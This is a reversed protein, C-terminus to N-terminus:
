AMLEKFDYPQKEIWRAVYADFNEQLMGATLQVGEHEWLLTGTPDHLHRMGLLHVGWPYEWGLHDEDGKGLRGKYHQVSTQEHLDAGPDREHEWRLPADEWGKQMDAILFWTETDGKNARQKAPAFIRNAPRIWEFFPKQLWNDNKLEPLFDMETFLLYDDWGKNGVAFDWMIQLCEAHTKKGDNFHPTIEIESDERNAYMRKIARWINRLLGHRPGQWPLVDIYRVWINESM